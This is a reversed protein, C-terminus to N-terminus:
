HGVGWMLNIGLTFFNANAGFDDKTPVLHYAGALGWKMNGSTLFNVGGGFNYGLKSKSTQSDGAPSALKSPINYVGLGAKAYPRASGQTPVAILAHATAQIASWSYESGAGHLAVAAQNLNDSGNWAQYGM